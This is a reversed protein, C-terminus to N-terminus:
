SNHKTNKTLAVAGSNDNYLIGPKQQPYGVEEMESYMWLIQKAARSVAMYEAETTLFVVTLQYQASWAMPGSAQIFVYGMCSRQSDIDGRYDADVWGTMKLDKFKDRSYTIKYHLIAKIYQLVHMLAQWHTIRPNSAYKSLTSVAYLLDPRTGIQAYMVSGLVEQYPKDAMAKHDEQAKPSQDKSLTIGLPLPTSKANCDSMRFCKLVWKLYACQSISITRADRNCEVHIGLIMDAEGLDKVEYRWGLEDKAREAEEHSLSIGTTDDTYTSTITINGDAHRSCVSPDAKSCYNDPSM